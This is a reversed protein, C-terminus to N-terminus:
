TGELSIFPRCQLRTQVSNGQDSAGIRGLGIFDHLQASYTFYNRRCPFPPGAGSARPIESSAACPEVVQHRDTFDSLQVM